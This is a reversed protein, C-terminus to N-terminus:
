IRTCIKGGKEKYFPCKKSGKWRCSDVRLVRCKFYVKDGGGVAGFAFCDSNYRSDKYIEKRTM